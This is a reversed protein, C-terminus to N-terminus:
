QAKDDTTELRALLADVDHSQSAAIRLQNLLDDMVAVARKRSRNFATTMRPLRFITDRFESLSNASSSIANAYAQMNERANTIDDPDENFDGEAVMAINGFTDMARASQKNFEVIEVSMRKVFVELDDAAKNSLRKAAKMDSGGAAVQNAEDTLRTFKEGLANTAETMREVINTVETMAENASEVLEVLGEEDTETELARLNALPDDVGAADPSVADSKSAVRSTVTGNVDM